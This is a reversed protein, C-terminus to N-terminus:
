LWNVSFLRLLTLFKLIRVWIALNEINKGMNDWFIEFFIGKRNVATQLKPKPETRNKFGPLIDTETRNPKQSKRNPKGTKRNVTSARINNRMAARANRLPTLIGLLTPNCFFNWSPLKSSALMMGSARVTHLPPGPWWFRSFYTIIFVCVCM